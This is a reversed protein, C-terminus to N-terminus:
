ETKVILVYHTEIMCLGVLIAGFKGVCQCELLLEYACAYNLGVSVKM